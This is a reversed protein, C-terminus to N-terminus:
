NEPSEQRPPAGKRVLLSRLWSASKGTAAPKGSLQCLLAQIGAVFRSGNPAPHGDLLATQLTEYDNPLELFPRVALVKEIDERNLGTAPTYRNLILRLQARAGIPQELCRLARRTTQLAALENSTVLLIDDALAAFGSDAASRVDAFDIIITQYRDRWFRGLDAALVTTDLRAVPDDPAALVEIGHTSISLRSWLDGDMRKWDRIVDGLHFEPKLKLQFSASAALADTDVLLVTDGAEQAQVALHVALTSAGCGPKGPVTCWIKGPPRQSAASGKHGLREFIGRVSETDNDTLFECAGRRLCRLILDADNRRLLVIVPVAPALESLLAQAQEANTVADLLCINAGHKASLAALSGIRPYEEVLTPSDPLIERLSAMIRRAMEAHPCIVLPRWPVAPHSIPSVPM